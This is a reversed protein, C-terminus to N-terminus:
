REVVEARAAMRAIRDIIISNLSEFHILDIYKRLTQTIRLVESKELELM